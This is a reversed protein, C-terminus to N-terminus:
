LGFPSNQLMSGLPGLEEMTIEQTRERCRDLALNVAAATLDAVMDSDDMSLLTPDYDIKNIRMAVTATVTVMGGGSSVVITETALRQQMRQMKEQLDGMSPMMGAFQNLDINDTM